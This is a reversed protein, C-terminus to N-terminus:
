KINRMIKKWSSDCPTFDKNEKSLNKASYPSNLIPELYIWNKQHSVMEDFYDQLFRLKKMKQLVTDKIRDVFKSALINNIILM